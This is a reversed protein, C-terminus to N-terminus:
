LYKHLERTESLEPGTLPLSFAGRTPRKGGGSDPAGEKRDRQIRCVQDLLRKLGNSSSLGAIRKSVFCKRRCGLPRNSWRALETAERLWRGAATEPVLHGTEFTGGAWCGRGKYYYCILISLFPLCFSVVM